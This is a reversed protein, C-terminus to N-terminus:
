TGSGAGQAVSTQLALWADTEALEFSVVPPQPLWEAGQRLKGLLELADRRKQDVRGEPLWDRLAGITAQAMGMGAADALLRPFSRDPYFRAKALDELTRREASSVVGGQEACALTARINVMAESLARYGREAAAHVVAVEDDDELAGSAFAEFIRGVGRMGFASLEAARLAGMSAAGLVHIGRSLAWLIEKHWVAPVQDFYGDVLAIAMPRRQAALFIDGRQAPPLVMADLQSSVENQTLTPGVFVVVSM